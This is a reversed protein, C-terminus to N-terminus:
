RAGGTRAAEVAVEWRRAENVVEDFADTHQVATKFARDHLALSLRSLLQLHRHITPAVILFVANTPVESLVVGRNECWWLLIAPAADACIIPSRAKPMAIRDAGRSVFMETARTALLARITERDPPPIPLDTAIDELREGARHGGGRVLASTFPQHADDEYLDVHVPLEMELAWELLELRHFMPHHRIMVFPIEENDIWRYVKTEPVNLVAAAERVTLKM